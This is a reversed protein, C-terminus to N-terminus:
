LVIIIILLLLLPPSFFSGWLQLSGPNWMHPKWQRRLARTFSHDITVGRRIEGKKGKKKTRGIMLKKVYPREVMITPESIKIKADQMSDM